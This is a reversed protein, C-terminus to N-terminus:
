SNEWRRDFERLGGIRVFVFVGASNLDSASCM